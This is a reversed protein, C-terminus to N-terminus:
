LVKKCRNENEFVFVMDGCYSMMGTQGTLNEKSIKPFLSDIVYHLSINAFIPSVISGQRCGEKNIVITGNEIIPTEIPITLLLIVLRKM